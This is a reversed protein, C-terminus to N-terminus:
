ALPDVLYPDGGFVGAKSYKGNYPLPRGDIVPALKHSPSETKAAMWFQGFVDGDDWWPGPYGARRGGSVADLENMSMKNIMEKDGHKLKQVIGTCGNNHLAM